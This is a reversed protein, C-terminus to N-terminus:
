NSWRHASLSVHFTLINRDAQRRYSLQETLERILFWGFGGEPLDESAVNLDLPAGQPLDGEPMPQGDDTIRFALVDARRDIEVEVVGHAEEGYAHEVVNNLAEALVIEVVGVTSVLSPVSRLAGVTGRLAGRVSVEDGPFVLHLIREGPAGPTATHDSIQGMFVLSRDLM